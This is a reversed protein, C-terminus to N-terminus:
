ENMSAIYDSFKMLNSFHIQKLFFSKIIVILLQPKPVSLLRVLYLMKMNANKQNCQTQDNTQDKIDKIASM